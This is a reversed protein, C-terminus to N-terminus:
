PKFVLKSIFPVILLVIVIGVIILSSSLIPSKLFIEKIYKRRIFFCILITSVAISPMLLKTIEM